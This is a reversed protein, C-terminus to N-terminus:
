GIATWKIPAKMFFYDPYNSEKYATMVITAEKSTINKVFVKKERVPYKLNGIGASTSINYNHKSDVSLGYPEYNLGPEITKSHNMYEFKFIIRKPTFNLNLPIKKEFQLYENNILTGEKRDEDYVKLDSNYTGEAIKVYQTNVMGEMKNVVDNLNTAKQGGLEVLKNDINTAVTKVNEKQVNTSNITDKLSM